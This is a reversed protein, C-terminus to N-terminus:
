RPAGRSSKACATTSRRRVNTLIWDPELVSAYAAIQDAQADADDTGVMLAAIEYCRIDNEALTDALETLSRGREVRATLSFVDPGFLSFGAAAASRIQEPLVPDVEFWASRNVRNMVRRQGTYDPVANHQTCRNDWLAVSNEAWM